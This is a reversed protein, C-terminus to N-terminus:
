LIHGILQKAGYILGKHGGGWLGGLAMQDVGMKIERILKLPNGLM